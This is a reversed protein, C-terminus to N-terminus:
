RVKSRNKIFEVIGFIIYYCCAYVATVVLAPILATLASNTENSTDGVGKASEILAMVPLWVMTFIM